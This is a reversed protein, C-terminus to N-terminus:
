RKFPVALGQALLEANAHHEVGADDKWYLDVLWRGFSDSKHTVIRLPWYELNAIGKVPAASCWRVMLQKAQQALDRKEPDTDNLEHTDITILRYRELAYRRKGEDTFLDVTDGDVVNMCQARLSPAVYPYSFSM